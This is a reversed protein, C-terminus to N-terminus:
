SFYYNIIDTLGGNSFGGTFAVYVLYIWGFLYHIVVWLLSKNFYWSVLIAIVKFAMRLDGPILYYMVEKIEDDM